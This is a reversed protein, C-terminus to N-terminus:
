WLGTIPERRLDFVERREDRHQVTLLGRNTVTGAAAAALGASRFLDVCQEPRDTTLWFAYTAFCTLWRDLSVGAPLPLKDLDIDAGLRGPELLMALSGISGAMSVDKAASALDDRAARALLRVDAALRPGRTGISTFFDFDARMRGDVCCAFVLHQGARVRSVSLVREVDGVAFASLAPEGEHETIHGGVIPVDYLRAAEAMGGLAEAAVSGAAVVTNVIARPVAGMAALDNVNALVAAIGAARPDSAVFAPHMAEGCVVVSGGAPVEVVAGDDGPGTVPDSVEVARRVAGIAGKARLGAHDRVAAVLEDLLFSDPSSAEPTATEPTAAERSPRQAPETGKPGTTERSTPVAARYLRPATETRRTAAPDNWNKNAASEPRGFGPLM